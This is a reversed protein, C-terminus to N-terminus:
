RREGPRAVRVWRGDEVPTLKARVPAAGSEVRKLLLHGLGAPKFGDQAPVVYRAGAVEGLLRADEAGMSVRFSAGLRTGDAAALLVETPHTRAFEAADGFLDIPPLPGTHWLTRGRRRLRYGFAPRGSLLDRAPTIEVDVGRVTFTDGPEVVRVRRMGLHRLRKAVVDDPVLAYPRARAIPGLGRAAFHDSRGSTVLLLDVAGVQAPLLAPAPANLFPGLGLDRVFTPDILARVGGIDVLFTAHRLKLLRLAGPGPSAARAAPAIAAGLGCCLM